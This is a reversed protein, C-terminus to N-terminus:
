KSGFNNIWSASSRFDCHVFMCWWQPWESSVRLAIGFESNGFLSHAVLRDQACWQSIETQFTVPSM